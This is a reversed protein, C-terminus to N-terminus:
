HNRTVSYQNNSKFPGKLISHEGTSWFIEITNVVKHSGLGFYAIPSDFSIFGGGSKIERMQHQSNNEGYRIVINSGIGFRNGIYDQLDVAISNNETENNKYVQVPGNIVTAVIDLDGDNDFDIYTYASSLSFDQLGSSRTEDTFKKGKKNKFFLNSPTADSRTWTGNVVYIDQWEDNDLDSFKANWSWGSIDVGQDVAQDSYGGSQNAVLLVNQNRHQPISRQYEAQTTKVPTKFFNNCLFKAHDQQQPIKKCFDQRRERVATKMLMMSMCARQESPLSISKCKNIDTPKHRGRYHYFGRKRINEECIRKQAIDEIEICYDKINRSPINAAKGGPQASIQAVYIDKLLDNNIDGTDISMTTQASIPIMRDQATIIKFGGKGDGTYFIDPQEFDNGVILDQKQDQNFDSLIISLTEGTIGPMVKETFKGNQNIHFSNSADPPPIRKAFGFFWNGIAADLDGDRDIDGFSLAYSLVNNKTPSSYLNASNFIGDDNIIYYNGTRYSTLYLDLWGDNNIDVLAVIVSNLSAIKPVNLEQRTFGKGESNVYLLVGTETALVLDQWGDNNFDGSALGRGNYFPPWFDTMSFQNDKEIGFYKGEYRTFLKEGPASRSQFPKHNIHIKDQQIPMDAAHAKSGFIDLMRNLEWQHYTDVAFGSIIGLIAVSIYLMVAVRKSISTWLIMCSYISYTGMTVLLIMVYIIPLGAALLAATVVVDFAIPVPLFVGVLAVLVIGSFSVQYDVLSELPMLTIVTAGLFGALLMLPVTLRILYWLNHLYQKLTRILAQPWNEDQSIEPQSIKCVSDNEITALAEKRFVFRSLLPIVFLIFIITVSVKIIGVYVPFISFLMTLVVINMTPSSILTALTTELRAGADHMGRAIPAACNVCVGLPAGTIFGILTNFFRNRTGKTGLMSLFTLFAAGLLVGFAMGQKNTNVWNITTYTIRKLVFDGEQLELLADFSLPDELQTSGGMSAKDDLAPYRSGSWFATALLVILLGVIILRKNVDVTTRTKRM